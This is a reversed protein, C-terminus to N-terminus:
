AVGFWDGTEESVKKVHAALSILAPHLNHFDIRPIREGRFTSTSFSLGHSVGGYHVGPSRLSTYIANAISGRWVERELWTYDTLTLRRRVRDLFERPLFAQDSPLAAIATSLAADLGGPASKWPLAKILWNPLILSFTENGGHMTLAKSFNRPSDKDPLHLWNALGDIYVLCLLLAEDEHDDETLKVLLNIKKDLEEFYATIFERKAELDEPTPPTMSGEANQRSTQSRKTREINILSIVPLSVIVIILVLGTTLASGGLLWSVSLVALMLVLFLGIGRMLLKETKELISGTIPGPVNRTKM